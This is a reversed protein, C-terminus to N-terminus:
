MKTVSQKYQFDTGEAKLDFQYGNAFTSTIKIDLVKGKYLSMLEDSGEVITLKYECDSPWSIKYKSIAGSQLDTETQISDIREISFSKNAATDTLKFKGTKFDSCDSERNNTNSQSSDKDGNTNKNNNCGIIILLFLLSSIFLKM